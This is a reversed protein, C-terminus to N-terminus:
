NPLAWGARLFFSFDREHSLKRHDCYHKQILSMVFDVPTEGQEWLKMALETNHWTIKAFGFRTATYQVEKKWDEFSLEPPDPIEFRHGCERCVYCIEWKDYSSLEYRTSLCKPCMIDMQGGTLNNTIVAYVLVNIIVQAMVVIDLVLGTIGNITKVVNRQFNQELLRVPCQVYFM